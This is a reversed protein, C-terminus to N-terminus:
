VVAVEPCAFEFRAADKAARRGVPLSIWGAAHTDLGVVNSALSTGVKKDGRKVVFACEHQAVLAFVEEGIHAHISPHKRGAPVLYTPPGTQEIGVPVARQIYKDGVPM